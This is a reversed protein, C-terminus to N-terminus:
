PYDHVEYNLKRYRCLGDFVYMCQKYKLVTPVSPISVVAIRMLKTIVLSDPNIYKLLVITQNHVYVLGTPSKQKSFREICYGTAIWETISVTIGYCNHAVRIWCRLSSSEGKITTRLM